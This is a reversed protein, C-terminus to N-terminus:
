AASKQPEADNKRGRAASAVVGLCCLIFFILFATHVTSMLVEPAVQSLQAQGLYAAMILTVIAMSVAQGVNRMTGLTSSAIGYLRPSVLSMVANTNPSSFL